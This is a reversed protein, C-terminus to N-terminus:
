QTKQPPGQAPRIGTYQASAIRWRGKEQRCVFTGRMSRSPGPKGDVTAAFSLKAIVVAFKGYDRISFESLDMSAPMTGAPPKLDPKYFGLVKERPDFEGLPSIEIYDQTFVSDLAAADWAIQADTMRKILSSLAEDNKGSPQAAAASVFAATAIVLIFLKFKM